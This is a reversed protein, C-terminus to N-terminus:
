LYIYQVYNGLSDKLKPTTGNTFYKYFEEANYQRMSMSGYGGREYCFQFVAALHSPSQTSTKFEEFTMSYEPHKKNHFWFGHGDQLALLLYLMQFLLSDHRYTYYDAWEIYPNPAGVGMPYPTFQVLGYGSDGGPIGSEWRGPNIGSEIYMNGLMGCIANITWNACLMKYIYTANLLVKDLDSQINTNSSYYNNKKINYEDMIKYWSVVIDKTEEPILNKKLSESLTKQASMSTGITGKGPGSTSSVSGPNSNAGGGSATPEPPKPKQPEPMKEPTHYANNEYVVMAVHAYPIGNEYEILGGQYGIIDGAQLPRKGLDYPYGLDPWKWGQGKFVKEALGWLTDGSQARYGLNVQTWLGEPDVYNVADSGCYAYWNTGDMAPDESIFRGVEPDYYRNHLYYLGLDEDYVYSRYRFVNAKAVGEWAPAAKTKCVGWADYSYQVIEMGTDTTISIVDGQLNKVFYYTEGEYVMGCVKGESDYVYEAGKYKDWLIRTGDVIYRYRKGNVTRETRVNGLNYTFTLKKGERSAEVLQGGKHWTLEWGRYVKPNPYRGVYEITEEGYGILRDKYLTDYRYEKGGKKVINGYADYEIATSVQSGEVPNDKHEGILQGLENYTYQTIGEVSDTIQTIREEGDYTYRIMRGDLANDNRSSSSYTITEVLRTTAESKVKKNQIHEATVQGPLYTYKRTLYGSSFKVEDTTKRGFHDTNYQSKGGGPMTVIRTGDPEIAYKYEQSFAGSRIRKGTLTDAGNYQYGVTCVPERSRVMENADLEVANETVQGITSGKKYTYNYERKNGIDIVRVIQGSSDYAYKYRHTQQGNKKWTESLIQGFRNYVYAVSSGDIMGITKLRGSNNKYGYRVDFGTSNSAIKSLKHFSNYSYTVYNGNGRDMKVLNGAKDYAYSVTALPLSSQGYASMESLRGNEGYSFKTLNECRDLVSDIRSTARDVSFWTNYGREDTTRIQDNGANNGPADADDQNYGFSRYITGHKGEQFITETIRNGYPDVAEEFAATDPEAKKAPSLEQEEETDYEAPFAYKTLGTEYNDRVLQICDFRAIGINYSYECFVKLSRMAKFKSKSFRVFGFQWDTTSPSFDAAHEEETNDAYIIKAALRLQAPKGGTREKEPLAVAKAFGSLTFSERVDTYCHVDVSQEATRRSDLNGQIFLSRSGSFCDAMNVGAGTSLNWNSAGREFGGNEMCNYTSAFSNKELQAGDAYLATRGNVCIWVKVSQAAALAFPLILRVYEASKETIRESQALVTDSTDTVRLFVGATDNEGVVDSLLRIYASFAYEGAPLTDTLQWVGANGSSSLTEEMRLVTNGYLANQSTSYASVQLTPCEGSSTAWGNLTQFSHNQLLNDAGSSYNVGKIYPNIGTGSPIIQVKDGNETYAYSGLMAGDNDFTYVTYIKETKDEHDITNEATTKRAAINYTYSVTEGELNEKGKESISGVRGANDYAYEIRDTYASATQTDYSSVATLMNDTYELKTYAGDRAIVGTLNDGTYQYQVKKGDPGTISTLTGSAAWDLAFVRDAGDIISTIRDATYVIQLKNKNQDEISVLRGATDFTYTDACYYLERKHPDYMYGSEALDECLYYEKKTGLLTTYTKKFYEKTSEVLYIGAGSEDMFVYGSRATGDHIFTKPVISQMYNLKWGNGLRMASFNATDLDIEANQTYQYGALASHFTHRISVPMRIGQWALDEAEVKLLGTQLAMDARGFAGLNHSVSASTSVVGGIEYTVVIKPQNAAAANSGYIDVYSIRSGSEDQARLMLSRYSAEGGRISDYFATIDFSLAATGISTNQAYDLMDVRASPTCTGATIDGTVQYLCLRPANGVCKQQHLDLTVKQIRAHKPIDPMALKIYMRSAFCSSGAQVSGVSITGSDKIMNGDRWRYTQMDTEGSLVVQPDIIVPFVRDNEDIWASDPIITLATQAENVPRVEYYVDDSRNGAGDTMFPAPIMFVEEGTELSSFTLIREAEQFQMKLGITDLLFGYRYSDARERIVIDEKVRDGTVSYRYDAHDAANEYLLYEGNGEEHCLPAELYNNGRSRKLPSVTLCCGEKEMRFIEDFEKKRNFRVQFRGFSNEFYAEKAELHVCESIEEYAGDAQLTHVPNAFYVAERWIGDRTYVKRNKGRRSMDEWLPVAEKEALRLKGPADDTRPTEQELANTRKKYDKM